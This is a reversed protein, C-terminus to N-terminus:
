EETLNVNFKKEIWNIGTVKKFNYEGLHYCAISFTFVLVIFMFLWLLSFSNVSLLIMLGIFATWLIIGENILILTNIVKESFINFKM